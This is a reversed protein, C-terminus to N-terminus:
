FKPNKNKKTKKFHSKKTHKPARSADPTPGPYEWPRLAGGQTTELGSSQGGNSWWKIKPVRFRSTYVNKKEVMNNSKPTNKITEM